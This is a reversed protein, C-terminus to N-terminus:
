EILRGLRKNFKQVKLTPAEELHASLRIFVTNRGGGGGGGGLHSALGDCAEEGANHRRYGNICQTSLPM